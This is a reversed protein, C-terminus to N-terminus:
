AKNFTALRVAAWMCWARFRNTNCVLLADRFINDADVQTMKVGNIPLGIKVLFTLYDHLVAARAYRGFPPFIAWLFRPISAGNTEFGVPVYFPGQEHFFQLPRDVIWKRWGEDEIQRLVLAGEFFGSM